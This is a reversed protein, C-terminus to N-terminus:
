SNQLECIKKHLLCIELVLDHVKEAMETRYDVLIQEINSRLEDMQFTRLGDPFDLTAAFDPMRLYESLTEKNVTTRLCDVVAPNEHHLLREFLMEEIKELNRDIKSPFQIVKGSM